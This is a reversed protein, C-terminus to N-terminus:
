WGGGKNESRVDREFMSLGVLSRGANNMDCALSFGGGRTLRRIRAWVSAFRWLGARCGIGTM